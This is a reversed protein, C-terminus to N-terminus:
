CTQTTKPRRRNCRQGQPELQQRTAKEHLGTKRKRIVIELLRLLISELRSSRRRSVGTVSANLKTSVKFSRDETGQAEDIGKV